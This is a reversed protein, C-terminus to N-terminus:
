KWPLMTTGLLMKKWGTSNKLPSICLWPSDRYDFFKAAFLAELPTVTLKVEGEIDDGPSDDGKNSDNDDIDDSLDIAWKVM